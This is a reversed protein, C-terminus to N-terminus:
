RARIPQSGLRPGLASGNGPSNKRALAPSISTTRQPVQFSVLIWLYKGYFLKWLTGGSFCAVGKRLDALLYSVPFFCRANRLSITLERFLILRFAMLCMEAVMLSYLTSLKLFLNLFLGLPNNQNVPSFYNIGKMQVLTTSILFKEPTDNVWSIMPFQMQHSM